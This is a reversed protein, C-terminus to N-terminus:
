LSLNAQTLWREWEGEYHKNLENILYDKDYHEIKYLNILYAFYFPIRNVSILSKKDDSLLLMCLSLNQPEKEAHSVGDMMRNICKDKENTLWYLLGHNHASTIIVEDDHRDISDYLPLAEEFRQNLMYCYALDNNNQEDEPKVERILELYRIVEESIGETEVLKNVLQRWEAGFVQLVTFGPDPKRPWRIM